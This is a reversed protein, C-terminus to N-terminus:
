RGHRGGTGLCRPVASNIWNNMIMMQLRKGVGLEIILSEERGDLREVEVADGNTQVEGISALGTDVMM